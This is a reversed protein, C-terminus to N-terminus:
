RWGCGRCAINTDGHCSYIPTRLVSSEGWGRGKPAYASILHSKRSDCYALIGPM